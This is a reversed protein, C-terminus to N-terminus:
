KRLHECLIGSTTCRTRKKEFLHEVFFSQHEPCIQIKMSNNSDNIYVCITVKGNDGNKLSRLIISKENTKGRIIDLKKSQYTTLIIEDPFTIQIKGTKRYSYIQVNFDKLCKYEIDGNEDRFIECKCEKM